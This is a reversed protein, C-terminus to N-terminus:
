STATNMYGAGETTIKLSTSSTAAETVIAVVYDTVASVTALKGNTITLKAGLAFTGPVHSNSENLEAEFQSGLTVAAITGYEAFTGIEGQSVVKTTYDSIAMVMLGPLVANDGSGLVTYTGAAVKKLLTGAPVSTGATLKVTIINGGLVKVTNRM